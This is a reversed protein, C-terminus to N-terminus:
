TLLEPQQAVLASVLGAHDQVVAGFLAKEVAVLYHPDDVPPLQSLQQQVQVQVQAAQVQQHQAQQHQAQAAQAPAQQQATFQGAAAYADMGPALGPRRIASAFGTPYEVEGAFLQPQQMAMAQMMGINGGGAAAAAAAQQQLEPEPEPEM